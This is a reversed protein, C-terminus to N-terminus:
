GRGLRKGPRLSVHRCTDTESTRPMLTVSGSWTEMGRGRLGLDPYALRCLGDEEEDFHSGIVCWQVEEHEGRGGPLPGQVTCGQRLERRLCMALLCPQGSECM